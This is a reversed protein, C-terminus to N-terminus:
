FIPKGKGQRISRVFPNQKSPLQGSLRLSIKWSDISMLCVSQQQSLLIFEENIVAHVKVTDPPLFMRRVCTNHRLEWFTLCIADSSHIDSHVVAVYDKNVLVHFTTLVKSGTAKDDDLDIPDKTWYNETEATTLIDEVDGVDEGLIDGMMQKFTTKAQDAADASNVTVKGTILSMDQQFPPMNKDWIRLISDEGITIVNKNGDIGVVKRVKCPHPLMLKTSSERINIMGVMNDNAYYFWDCKPPFYFNQMRASGQGTLVKVKQGTEFVVLLIDKNGGNGLVVVTGDPTVSLAGIHDARSPAFDSSKKTKDYSYKEFLQINKNYNDDTISRVFYGNDRYGAYLIYQGNGVLHRRTIHAGLHHVSWDDLDLGLTKMRQGTEVDWVDVATNRMSAVFDRGRVTCMVIPM